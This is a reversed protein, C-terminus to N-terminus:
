IAFYQKRVPRAMRKLIKWRKATRRMIGHALRYSGIVWRM